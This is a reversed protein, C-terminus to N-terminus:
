SGLWVTDSLAAHRLQVCPPGLFTGVILLDHFFGSRVGARDNRVDVCIRAGCKM